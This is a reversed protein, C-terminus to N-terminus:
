KQVTNTGTRSELKAKLVLNELELDKYKKEFSKYKKELNRYEDEYNKPKNKSNLLDIINDFLKDSVDERKLNRYLTMYTINLQESLYNMKLGSKDILEQLLKGRHIKEGM